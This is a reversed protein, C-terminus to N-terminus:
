NKKKNKKVFYTDNEEDYSYNTRPTNIQNNKIDDKIDIKLDSIDKQIDEKINDFLNDIYAKQKEIDNNEEIILELDKKDLADKYIKDEESM